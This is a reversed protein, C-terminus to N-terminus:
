SKLHEIHRTLVGSLEHLKAGIEYTDKLKRAQEYSSALMNEASASTQQSLSVYNEAAEEMEPLSNHLDKLIVQIIHLLDTVESVNKGWIDISKKSLTAAEINTKLSIGIRGFESAAQNSINEMEAITDSIQEAASSSQEALKRVENAVVSFGKGAEGARAAEITANLSLLKTQETITQILSIISTVSVSHSKISNITETVKRFEVDFLAVSGVLQNMNETGLQSSAKMEESRLFITDMQEMVRYLDEKMKQFAFISSESSSATEEAARKVIMMGEMLEDNTRIVNESSQQLHSGSEHLNSTTSRINHVLLHLSEMLSQFSKVLSVIEPSSNGAEFRVNWNGERAQKMTERLKVLPKTLNNIFASVLLAALIISILATGIIFTATNNVEQLYSKQPVAVVYIGKIEQVNQFALTYPIGDIKEQIIGKKKSLIKKKIDDPISLKTRKSVDFPVSNKETILFYESQLGDQTMEASHSKLVDNIKDSFGEADDVYSFMLNQAVDYFLAVEREMRQEMLNMVTEKSKIYSISSITGAMIILSIIIIILLRAKLTTRSWIGSLFNSGIMTKMKM